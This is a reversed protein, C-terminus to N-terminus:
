PRVESKVHTLKETHTHACPMMARHRLAEIDLVACERGNISRVDSLVGQSSAIRWKSRITRTDYILEDALLADTFADFSMSVTNRGALEFQHILDSYNKLIARYVQAMTVKAGM